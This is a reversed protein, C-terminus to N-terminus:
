CPKGGSTPSRPRIWETKQRKVTGAHPPALLQGAPDPPTVGSRWATEGHRRMGPLRM